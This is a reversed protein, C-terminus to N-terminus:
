DKLDTLATTLNFSPTIMFGLYRYERVMELKQNGFWINRRMLRGTKNLIMCKTKELNVEILNAETYANLNKLMNSLGNETESLILLDDAWILSNLTKTENILVPTTEGNGLTEPLDCIFINFLLPSLICGQKVGQNIRFSETMRGGFRISAQDQTYMNRISDYFKGTINHSLLKKFLIHRPITDFAKKFDVFCTYIYKNKQICYRNFLNYLM